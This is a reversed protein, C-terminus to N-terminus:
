FSIRRAENTRIEQLDHECEAYRSTGAALGWKNCYLRNEDAIEVNQYYQAITRAELMRPISLLVSGALALALAWLLVNVADYVRHIINWAEVSLKM